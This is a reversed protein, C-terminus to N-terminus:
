GAPVEAVAQYTAQMPHDAASRSVVPQPQRVLYELWEMVSPLRDGADLAAALSEASYGRSTDARLQEIIRARLQLEEGASKKGAEVGPQHYANINALEAYISVAREFMALLSGLTRETLADLMLTMTERGVDTLATRTGLLFAHLYDGSTAKDDVLMSPVSRTQRVGIFMTLFDNPGDRLQQVLAHQDTSGKNGFVSIGEAVTNGKRDETKGISEMILQQLYKSMLGLRDMYPLVVFNRKGRHRCDHMAMALQCAPNVTPEAARALDDAAAAGQLFEEINFGQLAAPLIGVASTVSTRGGVYDWLPFSALWKESEARQDLKSQPTTVAVAHKAFSLGAQKYREAVEVMGNRTEATGGSKSIVLTLTAALNDGIEDLVRDIGDPDTNDICKLVMLEDVGGLADALLQPGLASGGIGVLLLIYFGEEKEPRISGAHVADAFEQIRKIADSIDNGIGEPALSPKRLWYHGVMREEDPNAIAGADLKELASMAERCAAIKEDSAAEVRSMDLSMRVDPLELYRNELARDTM